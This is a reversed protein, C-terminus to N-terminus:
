NLRTKDNKEGKLLFSTKELVFNSTLGSFDPGEDFPSTCIKKKTMKRKCCFRGACCYIRSCPIGYSAADAAPLFDQATGGISIMIHGFCDVLLEEPQLFINARFRFPLSLANTRTRLFDHADKVVFITIFCTDIILLIVMHIFTHM